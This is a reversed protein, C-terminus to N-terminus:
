ASGGKQNLSCVKVTLGLDRLGSAIRRVTIPSERASPFYYPTVLALIM